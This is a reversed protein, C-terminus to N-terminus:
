FIFSMSNFLFHLIVAGWYGRNVQVSGLFLGMILQPLVYVFYLPLYCANLNPNNSIHVSAFLFASLWFFFKFYRNRLNQLWIERQFKYILYYILLAGFIRLYTTHELLSVKFFNDGSFRYFIVGFAIPFASKNLALPLRFIAEEIIPVIICVVFFSYFGYGKLLSDDAKRFDSLISNTGVLKSLYPDVIIIIGGSLAIFLVALLYSKLIYSVYQKISCSNSSIFFPKIIYKIISM